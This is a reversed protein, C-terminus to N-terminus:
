LVSTSKDKALLRGYEYGIDMDSMRSVRYESYYEALYRMAEQMYSDHENFREQYM